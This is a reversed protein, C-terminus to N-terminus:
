GGEDIIELGKAQEKTYHWYGNVKDWIVVVYDNTIKEITGIPNTVGMVKSKSVRDGTKM